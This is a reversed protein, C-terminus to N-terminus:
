INILTQLMEDVVSALRAGAQFGRQYRILDILEEDVSVGSEALRRENISSVYEEQIASAQIFTEADSGAKTSLNNYNENITRDPPTGMVNTQALDFLKIANLGDGTEGGTTVATSLMAFQTFNGTTDSITITSSGPPESLKIKQSDADFEAKLGTDQRIRNLIDQITDTDSWNVDTGNINVTGSVDPTVKFLTSQNGITVAASITNGDNNINETSQLKPVSLALQNANLPAVAIDNASTGQFFSLGTSGDLGYGSSHIENVANLLAMATTNLEDKYGALYNDRVELIGGLEGGTVQIERGTSSYLHATGDNQIELSIPYSNKGSVLASGNIYVQVSDRVDGVIKVDALQTLQDLLLDRKDLLLNTQYNGQASPIIQDNIYALDRAIANINDVTTTLLQDSQVTMDDLKRAKMRISQTLIDAKVLIASRLSLDEPNQSATNWSQWFENLGNTLSLDSTDSLIDSAETLLNSMVGVKGSMTSEKRYSADMMENRKRAITAIKASVSLVGSEPPEISYGYAVIEQIAEQRSYGEVQANAINQGVIELAKQNNLMTNSALQLGAFNM